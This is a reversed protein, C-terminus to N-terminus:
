SDYSNASKQKWFFPYALVRQEFEEAEATTTPARLFGVTLIEQVM